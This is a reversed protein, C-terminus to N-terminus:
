QTLIHALITNVDGVNVANDNNVDATTEYLEQLILNLVYNVDGVNVGGDGNVDFASNTDYLNVIVDDLVHKTADEEVAICHHLTISERKGFNQLAM